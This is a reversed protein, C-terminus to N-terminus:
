GGATLLVVVGIAIFMWYKQLFSKQPPKKKEALILKTLDPRKGEQAGQVRAKSRFKLGESVKKKPPVNCSSIPTKYDLALVSGYKDVHFTFAELFSSAELACAKVSAMPFIGSGDNGSQPVVRVSYFQGRKVMSKFQTADESSFTFEEFNIDANKKRLFKMTMESRPVFSGNSSLSHEMVFKLVGDEPYPDPSPTKRIKQKAKQKPKPAEEKDPTARKGVLGPDSPQQRPPSKKKPKNPSRKVKRSSPKRAQEFGRAGILM